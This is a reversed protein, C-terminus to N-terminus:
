TRRERESISVTPDFGAPWRGPGPGCPPRGCSINRELSTGDRYRYSDRTIAYLFGHYRGKFSPYVSGGLQGGGVKTWRSGQASSGPSHFQSYRTSWDMQRHSGVTQSRKNTSGLLFRGSLRRWTNLHSSVRRRLHGSSPDRNQEGLTPRFLCTARSVCTVSAVRLSWEVPIKTLKGDFATIPAGHRFM